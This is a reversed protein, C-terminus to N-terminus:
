DIAKKSALEILLALAALLALGQLQPSEPARGLMRNVFVECNNVGPAYQQPKVLAQGIRQWTPMIELPTLEYDIRCPRGAAFEEFTSIHEDRGPVNHAVRGDALQIGTHRLLVWKPRSIVRIPLAHTQM